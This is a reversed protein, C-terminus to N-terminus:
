SPDGYDVTISKWTKDAWEKIEVNLNGESGSKLTLACNQTWSPDTDSGFVDYQSQRYEYVDTVKGLTLSKLSSCDYFARPKSLTHVSPLNAEELFECGDFAGWGLTEVTTSKVTKLATCHYFANYNLITAGALTINVDNVNTNNEGDVDNINKFAKGVVSSHVPNSNENTYTALQGTVYFYKIGATYATRIQAEVAAVDDDTGIYYGEDDVETIGCQGDIVAYTVGDIVTTTVGNNSSCLVDGVASYVTNGVTISNWPKGAWMLKGEEATVKFDIEQQGEGLILDCGETNASGFAHGYSETQVSVVTGLTLTELATCNYFMDLGLYIVKPLYVTKLASCNVFLTEGRDYVGESDDLTANPLNVTQLTTCNYFASVGVRMVSESEVSVLSTCGEFAEVRIVSVKGWSVTNLAACYRFAREGITTNANENFSVSNLAACYLFASNPINTADKLVLSISGICPAEEPTPFTPEGYGDVSYTILSRIAEGVVTKASGSSYTALGNKVIVKAPNQATAANAVVGIKATMASVDDDDGTQKNGCSGDVEVTPVGNDIYYKTGDSLTISQWAAGAWMLQNDDSITIQSLPQDAHLFLDLGSTAVDYFANGETLGDEQDEKGVVRHFTVSETLTCGEFANQQLTIYSAAEKGMELNAYTLGSLANSGLSTVYDFNLNTVQTNSFAETGIDTVEGLTVSQLSECNYFAYGGIETAAPASVSQLATCGYFAEGVIVTAALASVSQLATCGYFAGNGIETAVPASVSQLATCQYFGGLLVEIADSLTLTIKTNNNAAGFQRVAEGVVTSACSPSNLNFHDYLALENVVTFATIGMAMATEIQKKVADVHTDSGYYYGEQVETIGCKGDIVSLNAQVSATRKVDAMLKYAKTAALTVPVVDSAELLTIPNDLTITFFEKSYNDLEISRGESVSETEGGTQSGSPTQVQVCMQTLEVLFDDTLQGGTAGYFYANGDKDTYAIYEGAEDDSATDFASSTLKVEDGEVGTHVRLRAQSTTWKGDTDLTWMEPAGTPGSYYYCKGYNDWAMSENQIYYISVEPVTVGANWDIHITIPKSIDIAVLNEESEESEDIEVIPLVGEPFKDPGKYWYYTDGTYKFLSMDKVLFWGETDDADIYQLMLRGQTTGADIKVLLGDGDEWPLTTYYSTGGEAGEARSVALTSDGLLIEVPQAHLAARSATGDAYAPKAHPMGLDVSVTRLANQAHPNDVLNEDTCSALFLVSCLTCLVAASMSQLVSVINKTKKNM